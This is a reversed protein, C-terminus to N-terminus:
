ENQVFVKASASWIRGNLTAVNITLVHEGNGVEGSDWVLTFPSYGEERETVFVYDVFLVIEYRQEAAYKKVKDDLCIRLPVKGKVMPLGKPNDSDPLELRFLPEMGSTCIGMQLAFANGDQLPPKKLGARNPTLTSYEFYSYESNGRAIISNDPLTVAEAMLKLSSEIGANLVGPDDKGDWAENNAGSLRPSCNVITKLLPGNPIGARIKVRADKALRYTVFGQDMDFALDEPIIIEGGSIAAPDYRAVRNQYDVADITFFYAEDPVVRGNLDKGDWVVTQEFDERENPWLDAIIGMDPDLIRVIAKGPSSLRFSIAVKEGMSPNFTRKDVTVDSIRLTTSKAKPAPPVGNEIHKSGGSLCGALSLCVLVGLLRKLVRSAIPSINM